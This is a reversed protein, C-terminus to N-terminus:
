HSNCTCPACQFILVRKVITLLLKGVFIRMRETSNRNNTVATNGTSSNANKQEGKQNSNNNTATTPNLQATALSKTPLQSTNFHSSIEPKNAKWTNLANTVPTKYATTRSFETQATPLKPTTSQRSRADDSDTLEDEPEEDEPIDSLESPGIDSDVMEPYGSYNIILERSRAVGNIINHTHLKEILESDSDPSSIPSHKAEEEKM